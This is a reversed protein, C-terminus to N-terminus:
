MRRNEAIQLIRDLMKALPTAASGRNINISATSNDTDIRLSSYQRIESNRELFRIGCLIAALERQNSSTLRWRGKWKGGITIQENTAVKTMTGGWGQLSADM